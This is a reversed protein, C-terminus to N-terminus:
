KEGFIIDDFKSPDENTSVKVWGDKTEKYLYYEFRYLESKSTIQYKEGNDNTCLMWSKENEISM